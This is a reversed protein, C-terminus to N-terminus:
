DRHAELLYAQPPKGFAAKTTPHRFGAAVALRRLEKETWFRFVGDHELDLLRGADNIFAPLSAAVMREGERGFVRHGTGSRLEAVGTVCIQSVDADRRLSSLVLRGGPRLVRHLERLISLPQPLYNLVLSGLVRDVSKDEIPLGKAQNSLDLDAAVFACQGRAMSEQARRLAEVVYDLEIINIDRLAGRADLFRPFTGVGSGLDLIRVGKELHLGAVQQAMLEEYAETSAVLDM